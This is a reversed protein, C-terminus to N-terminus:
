LVSINIYRCHRGAPKCVMNSRGGHGGNQNCVGNGGKFCPKGDKFPKGSLPIGLMGCALECEEVDMIRNAIPCRKEVYYNDDAIILLLFLRQLYKISYFTYKYWGLVNKHLRGEGRPGFTPDNGNPLDIGDVESSLIAVIGFVVGIRM